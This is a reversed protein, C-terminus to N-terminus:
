AKLSHGGLEFFNAHISIKDEDLQLVKSWIKVLKREIEGAAAIYNEGAEIVPVPLAKRNVKGNPSLPTTELSIFYDPVMYAPLQGSLFERLMNENLTLKYESSSEAPVIYACIYNDGSKHKRAIVLAERVADHKLLQNEIEGTEIRYGRLSVQNDNRGIFELNGDSLWRAIDGSNYCIEGEIFPHPIFNHATLDPAQLYGRTVGSGSIHLEGPVGCPALRKNRDLIYVRCGFIPKGIPVDSASHRNCKYYTACVTTETPGYTNYVTGFELLNNIHSSLLRDGGSIFTHISKLPQISGPSDELCTKNLESLLLPACTIMTVNYNQIVQRLRDMDLIADRQPIVLEGGKLLVPYLEEVFADFAASAQQIVIDDANLTFEKEFAALYASLNRHEVGVAKPKGTSGSTYIVYALQSWLSTVPKPPASNSANFIEMSDSLIIRAQQKNDAVPIQREVEETTVLIKARSDELMYRHRNSPYQPDLPMYSGGAKLIGFIGAIMHISRQTMLGVIND